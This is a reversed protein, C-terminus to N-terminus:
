ITGHKLQVLGKTRVFLSMQMTPLLNVYTHMCTKIIPNILEFGIAGHGACYEHARNYKKKRGKAALLNYFRRPCDFGNVDVGDYYLLTWNDIQQRIVNM